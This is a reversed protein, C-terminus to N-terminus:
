QVYMDGRKDKVEDLMEFRSKGFDLDQILDAPISETAKEGDSINFNM